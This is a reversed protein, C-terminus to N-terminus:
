RGVPAPEAALVEPTVMAGSRVPAQLRRGLLTAAAEPPIGGGPRVWAVDEQGVVAGAPLDRRFIASRRLAPLHGRECARPARVGDGLMAEVDRVRRVLEALESPEASLRHDCFSSYAKDITVHKEVIRAGVAVALVAAEIGLTHDSYGVPHGFADRLTAIAALNAEHAPTPYASVCHLLALGPEVGCRKWVRQITERACAVEALTALGTSVIVPLGTEAVAELLPVFTNDSSAVKYADVLDRLFAASRLDLPTSLFLLGAREAVGALHEFEREGLRFRELREYRERDHPSVFEGTCYTQFKVADAGAEAAIMVLREALARDGEHNNGIEAVVLVREDLDHGGIRM